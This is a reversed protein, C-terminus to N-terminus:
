RSRLEDLRSRLKAKAEEWSVAKDPNAQHEALRRRIEERQAETVPVSQEDAIISDWIDEVLLLREEISLEHYPFDSRNIM